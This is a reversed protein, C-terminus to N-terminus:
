QLPGPKSEQGPDRQQMDSVREINGTWTKLQGILLALLGLFISFFFLYFIGKFRCICMLLAIRHMHLRPM